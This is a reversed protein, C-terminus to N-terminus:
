IGAAVTLRDGDDDEDEESIWELLKKLVAEQGMYFCWSRKREEADAQIRSSTAAMALHEVYEFVYDLAHQYGAAYGDHDHDCESEPM